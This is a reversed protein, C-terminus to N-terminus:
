TDLVSRVAQVYEAAHNVSFSGHHMGSLVHVTGAPIQQRILAASRRIGRIEKEGYYIHVDARCDRLTNKMSYSANARLFAIMDAKEIRCTDRYYDAFLAEQMHLSRFQLRAFWKQRILPYCAGFAPLIMAATLRSPIVMASEAFAHSCIDGQQSLMELLVQAGLSVGGILDAHGGLHEHIFTVLAAANDEITTFHRDSGAHGDLVPLIVRFTDQLLEAEARFNWWSLGGGHLLVVTRRNGAGYEKYQM